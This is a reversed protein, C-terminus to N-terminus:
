NVLSAGPPEASIPRYCHWGVGDRKAVYMAADAARKLSDADAAHDPFIAFGFSGGVTLVGVSTPIPEAIQRLLREAVIQMLGEERLADLILLFEDGGHRGVYDSNRLTNQLRTSIARLVEDGVDHGFKDNIPKFGNLDMCCLAFFSGTQAMNSSQIRLALEADFGHRNPVGTLADIRALANVRAQEFDRERKLMAATYEYIFAMASAAVLGVIGIVLQADGVKEPALRLPFPVGLNELVALIVIELLTVIATISGWRIGGFFYGLLPPFALLQIVPSAAGGGAILIGGTISLLDAAVVLMSCLVFRGSRRLGFLGFVCGITIFVCIAAAAIKSADSFTTLSVAIGTTSIMVAFFLLTAILIRARHRRDSEQQLAPHMFYEILNAFTATLRFSV